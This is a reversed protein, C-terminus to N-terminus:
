VPVRMQELGSRVRTYKWCLAACENQDEHGFVLHNLVMDSNWNAALWEDWIHKPVQTVAFGAITMPGGTVVVGPMRRPPPPLTVSENRGRLVIAGSLKSAVFVVQSM